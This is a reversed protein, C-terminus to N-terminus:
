KTGRENIKILMKLQTDTIKFREIWKKFIKLNHLDTGAMDYMGQKLLYGANESVPKGYYGSLSLLNLQFLYDKNKLIHYDRHTMYVYREPHAIVPTNGTVSLNFLQDYLNSPASLYYTEVLVKDGDLYLLGGEVCHQFGSDLLYEAGLDLKIKGGYRKCLLTFSQHINELGNLMGNMVHPTAVVRGVKLSELYDLTDLAEELTKVGDDVGPLIHCHYDAFDHFFGSDVLKIKSQFISM